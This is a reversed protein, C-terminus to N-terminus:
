LKMNYFLPICHINHRGGKGTELDRLNGGILTLEKRVSRQQEVCPAAHTLEMVRPEEVPDQRLHRHTGAHGKALQLM